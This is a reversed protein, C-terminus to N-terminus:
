KLTASEVMVGLERRSNSGPVFTDAGLGIIIDGSLNSPLKLTYTEWNRSTQVKGLLQGGVYVEVLPPTLSDPRFGRLRLNVEAPHQTGANPFKLRTLEQGSDGRGSTWRYLKGTQADKEYTQFGYTYGWDFEGIALTNDLLPATPLKEWAWEDAQQDLAVQRTNFEGRAYAKNGQLLYIYGLAIHSQSIDQSTRGIRGIADDFRGLAAETLGIGIQTAPVSQNAKAYADLAEQYKGELRLRDGEQANQQENWRELGRATGWQNDLGTLYAIPGYSPLVAVLFLVPLVLGAAYRLVRSNRLPRKFWAMVERWNALTYAAYLLLFFYVSVRFRTVAFFAFALIMNQATWIVVFSRVARSSSPATVLGLMALAGAVVYLLDNLTADLLLWPPNIQGLSYGASLREDAGFNIQWFDLAEKFGKDFIFSAPDKFFIELGKQYGVSDREAMNKVAELTQSVLAGNRGKMAGLFFNYGGTNDIFPRGYVSANRLAWPSVTIAFIVLMVVFAGIAPKWKRGTGIWFWIALFPVFSLVQGRTLASLGLFFSGGVLTLWEKRSEPIGKNNTNNKSAAFFEAFFCVSLLFLLIFLTESLLLYPFVVFPWAVSALLAAVLGTRRGYLRKGLWYLLYVSALSLCIQVLRIIILDHGFFKFFGAMMLIFLPPRVWTAGDYFQWGRGDALISSIQYYEAEDIVFYRHTAILWVLLRLALGAGLIALLVWDPRFRSQKKLATIAGQQSTRV